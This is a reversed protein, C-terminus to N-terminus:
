RCRRRRAIGRTSEAELGDDDDDDGNLISHGSAYSRGRVNLTPYRRTGLDKSYLGDALMGPSQIKWDHGPQHPTLWHLVTSETHMAFRHMRKDHRHLIAPYRVSSEPTRVRSVLRTLVLIRGTM